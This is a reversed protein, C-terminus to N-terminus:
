GSGRSTSTATPLAAVVYDASCALSIDLVHASDDVRRLPLTRQQRPYRLVAREAGTRGDGLEFIGNNAAIRHASLLAFGATPAYRVDKLSIPVEIGLTDCVFGNLDGLAVIPATGGGVGCVLGEYLRVNSLGRLSSTVHAQAGSDVIWSVNGGTGCLAPFAVRLAFSVTLVQLNSCGLVTDNGGLGKKRPPGPCYLM